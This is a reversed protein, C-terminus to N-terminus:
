IDRDANTYDLYLRPLGTDKVIEDKSEKVPHKPNLFMYRWAAKAEASQLRSQWLALGKSALYRAGFQYLATGIGKRQYTPYHKNILETFEYYDLQMAGPTKRYEDKSALERSDFVRIFDVYPKNIIFDMMDEYDDKRAKTLYFKAATQTTRMAWDPIEGRKHLEAVIDKTKTLHPPLMDGRNVTRSRTKQHYTYHFATPYNTEWWHVPIHSIKLYGAHNGKVYADIRIIEYGMNIGAKDTPDPDHLEFEIPEGDSTHYDYDYPDIDIPQVKWQEYSKTSKVMNRM